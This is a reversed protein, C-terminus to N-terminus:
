GKSAVVPAKLPVPSMSFMSIAGPLLTAVLMEPPLRSRPPMGGAATPVPAVAPFLGTSMRPEIFARIMAIPALSMAPILSPTFFM